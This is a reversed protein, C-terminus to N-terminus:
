QRNSNGVFNEEEIKPSFPNGEQFDNSLHRIKGCLDCTLSPPLKNVVMLSEVKKSLAELQGLITTNTDTAFARNQKEM